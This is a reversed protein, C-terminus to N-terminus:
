QGEYPNDKLFEAFQKTYEELFAEQGASQMKSDIDQIAKEIDDVIGNYLPLRLSAADELKAAESKVSDDVFSFGATIEKYFMEPDAMLKKFAVVDDPTSAAYRTMEPVWTMVFADFNYYQGAEDAIQEYKEDGVATWHVGEVGYEFLDHNAQNTFLWDYFKMVLEANESTVPICAFNWAQFTASVQGKNEMRMNDSAIVYGLEAGPVSAKLQNEVSEYVDVGRPFSAAKGSCFAGQHDTVNMVDPDIYGADYWEKALKFNWLPDEKAPDADDMYKRFEEDYAKVISRSAYPTGDDRIIIGNMFRYTQDGAYNHTEMAPRFWGNIMDALGDTNGLFTFPVMGPENDLIAQWYAPLDSASEVTVGYKDALDKRFFVMDGATFSQSFPIGYIHYEGDPGVFSNTSLYDESFAAKLGPYDDNGFYEDLNVLQGKLAMENLSPATWQAAFVSDMPEGSSLKLSVKQGIDDFGTFIFDWSIGLTEGTEEEFKAIVEDFGTPWSTNSPAIFTLKTEAAALGPLATGLLCLTLLLPLLRRISRM